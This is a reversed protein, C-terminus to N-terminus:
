QFSFVYSGAVSIRGVIHDQRVHELVFCSSHASVFNLIQVTPISVLGLVSLTM